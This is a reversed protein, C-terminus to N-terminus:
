STCLVETPPTAVTRGPVCSGLAGAPRCWACCPRHWGGGQRSVEGLDADPPVAARPGRHATRLEDPMPRAAADDLLRGVTRLAELYRRRLTDGDATAPQYTRLHLRARQASAAVLDLWEQIYHVDYLSADPTNPTAYRAAM